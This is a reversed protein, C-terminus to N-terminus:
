IIVCNSMKSKGQQVVNVKVFASAELITLRRQVTFLKLNM